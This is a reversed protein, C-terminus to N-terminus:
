SGAAEIVELDATMVMGKTEPGLYVSIIYIITTIVAGYMMPEAFGM